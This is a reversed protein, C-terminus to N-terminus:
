RGSQSARAARVYKELGHNAVNYTGNRITSQPIPKDERWLARRAEQAEEELRYLEKDKAYRRYVWSWPYYSWETAIGLWGIGRM